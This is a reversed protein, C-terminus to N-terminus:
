DASRAGLASGCRPTPEILGLERLRIELATKSVQYRRALRVPEQIGSTWDRRLLMKPMLLCAAFHDCVREAQEESSHMASAAYLQRRDDTLLEDDLLHKIEHALSFRQRVQPEDARLVIVWGSGTKTALGSKALRDRFLVTLFPLSTLTETLLAPTAAQGLQWRLLAAQREAIRKADNIQLSRRPMAARLERLQERASVALTDDTSNLAPAHQQLSRMLQEATRNFSRLVGVLTEGLEARSTTQIPDDLPATM